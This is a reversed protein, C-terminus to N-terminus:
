PTVNLNTLQNAAGLSCPQAFALNALTSCAPDPLPSPPSTTPGTTSTTTPTAPMSGGAHWVTVGVNLLVAQDIFPDYVSLIRQEAGHQLAPPIALGWAFDLEQVPRTLLNQVVKVEACATTVAGVACDDATTAPTLVHLRWSLFVVWGNGFAGANALEVHATPAGTATAAGNVLVGFRATDVTWADAPAGPSYSAWALPNPVAVLPDGQNVTDISAAAGASQASLTVGFDPSAWSLTHDAGLVYLSGGASVWNKLLQANAAQLAWDNIDSGVVITNVTSTCPTGQCTLLAPLSTLLTAFDDPLVGGGAINALNTATYAGPPLGAKFGPVAAALYAAERLTSTDAAHQWLCAPVLCFINGPFTDVCTQTTPTPQVCTRTVSANVPCKSSPLQLGGTPGIYCVNLATCAIQIGVINTCGSAPVSTFKGIYVARANVPAFDAPYGPWTEAPQFRLNLGLGADQLRLLKVAEDYDIKHNGPTARIQAGNLAVVSAYDLTNTARAGASPDCSGSRLGWQSGEGPRWPDTSPVGHTSVTARVSVGPILSPTLARTACTSGAAWNVDSSVEFITEGVRTADARLQSADPTFFDHPSSGAYYVVSGFTVSFVASAMILGAVSSMAKRDRLWRGVPYKGDM